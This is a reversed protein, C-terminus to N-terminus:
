GVKAGQKKLVWRRQVQAWTGWTTYEMLFHTMEVSQVYNM